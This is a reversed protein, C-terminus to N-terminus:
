GEYHCPKQGQVAMVNGRCHMFGRISKVWEGMGACVGIVGVGVRM